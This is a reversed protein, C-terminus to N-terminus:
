PSAEFRRRDPAIKSKVKKRGFIDPVMKEPKPDSQPATRSVSPKSRNSSAESADAGSSYDSSPTENQRAQARRM